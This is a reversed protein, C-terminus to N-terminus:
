LCSKWLRTTQEPVWAVADGDESIVKFVVCAIAQVIQQVTGKRWSDAMFVEVIDGVRAVESFTEPQACVFNIPVWETCDDVDYRVKIRENKLDKKLVIADFLQCNKMVQVHNMIEIKADLERRLLFGKLVPLMHVWRFFPLHM